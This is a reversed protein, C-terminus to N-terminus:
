SSYGLMASIKQAAGLLLGKQQEQIEKSWRVTPTSISLAGCIKRDYDFIPAAICRIHMEHEEADEGYGQARIKELEAMLAPGSAITHETYVTFRTRSIINEIIADPEYALLVKGLGTCYLPAMKGVRSYLRLSHVSDVKCMYVLETDERLALHVAEGVQGGLDKLLPMSMEAINYHNLIDSCVSALKLTLGYQQTSQNQYAYGMLCLTQICKYVMTSSMHTALAIDKLSMEPKCSLVQIISFAKLILAAPYQSASDQKKKNM